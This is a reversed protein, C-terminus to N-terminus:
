VNDGNESSALSLGDSSPGLLKWNSTSLVHIGSSKGGIALWKCDKSWDLCSVSTTREPFITPITEAVEKVSVWTITDCVEFSENSGAYALYRGAPSWKTSFIHSGTKIQNCLVWGGKGSLISIGNDGGIALFRGSVGFSLSRVPYNSSFEVIPVFFNSFYVL